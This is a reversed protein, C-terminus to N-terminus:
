CFELSEWPTPVSKSHVGQRVSRFSVHSSLIEQRKSYIQMIEAKYSKLISITECVQFLFFCLVNSFACMYHM